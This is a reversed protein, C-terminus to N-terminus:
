PVATWQLYDALRQRTFGLEFSASGAARARDSLYEMLRGRISRQSLIAAKRSMERTRAALLALLNRQLRQHFGCAECCGTPVCGCSVATRRQWWTM